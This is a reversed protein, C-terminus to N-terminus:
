PSSTTTTAFSQCLERTGMNMSASLFFSGLLQAVVFVKKRQWLATKWPRKSASGPRALTKSTGWSYMSLMVKGMGSFTPLYLLFHLTTFVMAAPRRYQSRASVTEGDYAASHALSGSFPTSSSRRKAIALTVPTRFPTLSPTDGASFFKTVFVFIDQPVKVGAVTTAALSCRLAWYRWSLPSGADGPGSMHKMPRRSACFPYSRRSSLRSSTSSSVSSCTTM